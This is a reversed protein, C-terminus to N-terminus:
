FIQDPPKFPETISVIRSTRIKHLFKHTFPLSHCQRCAGLLPPRLLAYSCSCCGKVFALILPTPNRAVIFVNAGLMRRRRRISFCFRSNCLLLLLVLLLPPPPPFPPPPLPPDVGPLAPPPIEDVADVGVPGDAALPIKPPTPSTMEGPHSMTGGIM